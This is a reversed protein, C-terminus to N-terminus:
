KGTRFVRIDPISEPLIAKPSSENSPINLAWSQIESIKSTETADFNLPTVTIKGQLIAEIDSESDRHNVSSRNELFPRGTLWYYPRGLPDTRKEYRDWYPTRDMPVIAILKPEDSSFEELASFPINVNFLEGPGTQRCLIQQIIIRAARAGKEILSVELSATHELSVAISTIGLMSGEMAAGITGSYLINIGVNLGNNMGSVILDPRQPALERVGIKVCDVPTGDVAYGFFSDELHVEKVLLPIQFTIAQGVGSQESAPAVVHVDGLLQLERALAALGPSFIGDDNTLLIQM